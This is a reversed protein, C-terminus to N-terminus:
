NTKRTRSIQNPKQPALKDKAKKGMIFEYIFNTLNEKELKFKNLCYIQLIKDYTDTDNTYIYFLFLYWYLKLPVHGSIEM